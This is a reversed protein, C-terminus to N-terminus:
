FSLKDGISPEAANDRIMQIADMPDMGKEILGIAVCVPARGLGAVCHIAVTAKEGKKEFVENLVNLWKTVVENPPPAGDPFPLEKVTIGAKTLKDIAYTPECTRVLVKVNERKLEKLYQDLNADTPADMILYRQDKFSILSPKSVYQSILVGTM